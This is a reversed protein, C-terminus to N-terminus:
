LLVYLSGDAQIRGVGGEVVETASPTVLHCSEGPKLPLCRSSQKGRGRLCCIILSQLCEHSCLLEVRTHPLAVHEHNGLYSTPTTQNQILGWGRMTDCWAWCHLSHLPTAGCPEGAEWGWVQRLGNQSQTHITVAHTHVTIDRWSILECFSISSSSVWCSGSKRTYSSYVSNTKIHGILRSGM